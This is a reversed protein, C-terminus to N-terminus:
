SRWTGPQPRPLQQRLVEGEEVQALHPASPSSLLVQDVRNSPRRGPCGPCSSVPASAPPPSLPACRSPAVGCGGARGDGDQVWDGRCAICSGPRRGRPAVGLATRTCGRPLIAQYVGCDSRHGAAGCSLCLGFPQLLLSSGLLNMRCFFWLLRVGGGVTCCRRRGDTPSGTYSMGGGRARAGVRAAVCLRWFRSTVEVVSAM